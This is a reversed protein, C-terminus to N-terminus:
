GEIEEKSEVDLVECVYVGYGNENEYQKKTDIQLIRDGYNPLEQGNIVQFHSHLGIKKMSDKM